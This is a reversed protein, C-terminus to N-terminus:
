DSDSGSDALKKSKRKEKEVQDMWLSSTRVPFSLRFCVKGEQAKRLAKEAKKKAKKEEKSLKVKKALQEKVMPVVGNSVPEEVDMDDAKRKKKEKKKEKEEEKAAKREAKKEKKSKKEKKKKGEEESDSPTLYPLAAQAKDVDMLDEAADADERDITDLVRKMAEANKSPAKGSAFFELREEVQARLADGFKPTPNEPSLPRRSLLFAVSCM